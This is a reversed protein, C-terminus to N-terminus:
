ATELTAVAYTFGGPFQVFSSDLQFVAYRKGGVSVVDSYGNTARANLTGKYIVAILDSFQAAEPFKKLITPRDRIVVAKTTTPTEAFTAVGHSDVAQARAIVTVAETYRPNTTHRPAHLTPM